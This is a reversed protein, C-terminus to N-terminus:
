IVEFRKKGCIKKTKNVKKCTKKFRLFQRKANIKLHKDSTINNTRKIESKKVNILMLEKSNALLM